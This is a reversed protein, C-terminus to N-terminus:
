KYKKLLNVISNYVRESNNKDRVPFFYDISRMRHNSLVCNDLLKKNIGEILANKTTFVDGLDAKRYDFYGRAYHKSYYEDEDFQYFFVSKHMYAFDFYVSSYDTILMKSDILLQQVTMDDYKILNVHKLSSFLSLYTQLEHHLYLYIKLGYKNSLEVLNNDQLFSMWEKYFHSESFEKLGSCKLYARWTPMILIINSNDRCDFLNDFRPLGTYYIVGNSYGYSKSLYNFEPLAGSVFVSLSKNNKALFSEHFNKSIGHQLFVHIENTKNRRFFKEMVIWPAYGYLNSSIKVRYGICMLFHRISGFKVTNGLSAVKSYDSSDKKILYVPRIEKHNKIIYDFFVFGNDQADDGRECILWKRKSGYIVRCFPLLVARIVLFVVYKFKSQVRLYKNDDHKM